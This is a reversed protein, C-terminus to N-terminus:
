NGPGHEYGKWEFPNEKLKVWIDVEQGNKHRIRLNLLSGAKRIFTLQCPRFAYGEVGIIFDGTSVGLRHLDSHIGIETILGASNIKAGILGRHQETAVLEFPKRIDCRAKQKLLPKSPVYHKHEIGGKLIAQAPLTTILLLATVLQPHTSSM